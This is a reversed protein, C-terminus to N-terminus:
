VKTNSSMRKRLTPKMDKSKDILVQFYGDVETLLPQTQAVLEMKIELLAADLGNAKIGSFNANFDTVSM